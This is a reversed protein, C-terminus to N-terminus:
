NYICKMFENIDVIDHDTGFVDVMIHDKAGHKSVRRGGGFWTSVLQLCPIIRRHM